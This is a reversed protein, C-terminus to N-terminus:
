SRSSLAYVMLLLTALFLCLATVKIVSFPARGTVEGTQGNVLFQYPRGRYRYASIWIPLLLHKFREDAFRHSVRLAQQTDGGV